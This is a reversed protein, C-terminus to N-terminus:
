TIYLIALSFYRRSPSHRLLWALHVQLEDLLDVLADVAEVLAQDDRLIGLV